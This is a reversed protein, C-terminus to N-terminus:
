INLGFGPFPFQFLFFNSYISNNHFLINRLYSLIGGIYRFVCLFQEGGSGVHGFCFDYFRASPKGSGHFAAFAGPALDLVRRNRVGLCRIFDNTFIWVLGDANGKAHAGQDAQKHSPAACLVDM